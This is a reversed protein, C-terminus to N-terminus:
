VYRVVGVYRLQLEKLVNHQNIYRSIEEVDDKDLTVHCLELRTMKSALSALVSIMSPSHRVVHLRLENILCQNSPHLTSRYVFLCICVIDTCRQILTM